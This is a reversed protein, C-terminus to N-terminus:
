CNKELTWCFTTWPFSRSTHATSSIYRKHIIFVTCFLLSWIILLWAIKLLTLWLICIVSPESCWKTWYTIESRQKLTYARFCTSMVNSQETCEQHWREYYTEHLTGGGTPRTGLRSHHNTDIFFFTLNRAAVTIWCSFWDLNTWTNIFFTGRGPRNSM